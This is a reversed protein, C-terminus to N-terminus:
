NKYLENYYKIYESETVNLKYNANIHECSIMLDYPNKLNFVDISFKQWQKRIAKKTKFEQLDYKLLYDALDLGNVREEDTAVTELYDSVTYNKLGLNKAKESWEDFCKLDPFLMIKRNQISNFLETRINQKGGTALWIFEPFYLSCIIATKEAEVLAITNNNDKTLHLGFLCQSLNFDTLKLVSHIWTIHDFPKKIRKGTNADYLMIKGTRIRNLNDIQYFVTSGAWHKSTGIYYKKILENTASQGFKDNLFKVFTNNDYNKSSSTLIDNDIYSITKTEPKAQPTRTAQIPKYEITINNDIFYQKPTYHYGCNNERNCKGVNPAVAQGTENDIYLTLEKKGCKPCLHRSSLNKYKELNYRYNM